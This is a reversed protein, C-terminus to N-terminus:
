RKDWAQGSGPAADMGRVQQEMQTTLTRIIYDSTLEQGVSGDHQTYQNTVKKLMGLMNAHLAARAVRWTTSKMPSIFM